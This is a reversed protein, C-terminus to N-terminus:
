HLSVAARGTNEIEIWAPSAGDAARLTNRNNTQVESIRLADLGAAQASGVRAFASRDLLYGALIVILGLLAGLAFRKEKAM